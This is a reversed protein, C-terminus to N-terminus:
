RVQDNRIALDHRDSAGDDLGDSSGHDHHDARCYDNDDTGTRCYNNDDARACGNNDDDTGTRCYDNDDACDDYEDDNFDFEHTGLCGSGWCGNLRRGSIDVCRPTRDQSDDKTSRCHAPAYMGREDTAEFNM